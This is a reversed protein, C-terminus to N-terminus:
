GVLAPLIHEVVLDHAPRWGPALRDTPPPGPDFGPDGTTVVVADAAPVAHVHQGAWGGALPGAPDIWTLYGYPRQEPAGGPTHATLMAAAYDLDLVSAPLRLHGFGLHHGDPDQPWHWDSIGLPSFLAREAYVALPEGVLRELAVGLLHAGGDDYRFATGPPAVAPAAAIRELWGGPLAMVADIDFPGDTTCGRTMTLLHRLTQGPLPLGILDGVPLDLDPLDLDPVAVGVLTALVSKTVSFVDGVRPGHYHTDVIVQGGVEVLLHSTHAYTPETRIREDVLACAAQVVNLHDPAPHDPV